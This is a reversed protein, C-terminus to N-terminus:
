ETGRAMFVRIFAHLGAQRAIDLLWAECKGPVHQVSRIRRGLWVSAALIGLFVAVELAILWQRYEVQWGEASYACSHWPFLVLARPYACHMFAAKEIDPFLGGALSILLVYWHQRAYTWAVLFAPLAVLLIKPTQLAKRVAYPLRLGFAGMGYLFNHHPVADLILHTAVGALFCATLFMGDQQSDQRGMDPQQRAVKAAQRAYILAQGACMGAAVHVPFDMCSKSHHTM